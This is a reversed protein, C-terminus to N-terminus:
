EVLEPISKVVKVAGAEVVGSVQGDKVYNVERVSIPIQLFFQDFFARDECVGARMM